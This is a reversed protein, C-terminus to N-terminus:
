AGIIAVGTFLGTCHVRICDMRGFKGCQPRDLLTLIADRRGQAINGSCESEGINCVVCGRIPDANIWAGQEVAEDVVGGHSIPTKVVLGPQQLFV